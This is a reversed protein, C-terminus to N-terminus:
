FLLPTFFAMGAANYVNRIIQTHCEPVQSQAAELSFSEEEVAKNGIKNPFFIIHHFIKGTSSINLSTDKPGTNSFPFYSNNQSEM